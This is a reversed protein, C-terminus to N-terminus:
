FAKWCGMSAVYGYISPRLGKYVSGYSMYSLSMHKVNIAQDQIRDKVVYFMNDIARAVGNSKNNSVYFIDM